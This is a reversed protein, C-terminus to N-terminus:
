LVYKTVLQGRFSPGIFRFSVVRRPRTSNNISVFPIEYHGTNLVNDNNILITIVTIMMTVTSRALPMRVFRGGIVM